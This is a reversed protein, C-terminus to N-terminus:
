APDGGELVRAAEIRLARLREHPARGTASPAEVTIIAAAPMQAAFGALALEGAGPQLRHFRAEELLPDLGSSSRRRPHLPADCLQLVALQEAPLLALDDPASGGRTAHLTDVIIGAGPVGTALRSADELTAVARYPMAEILLRLGFEAAAEALMGFGDAARGRDPDDSFSYLLEAGLRAGLELDRRLRDIRAGFNPTLAVAEIAHVRVGNADCVERIAGADIPADAWSPEGGAIHITRLSTSQFGAEAAALVFERPALSLESLHDVGLSPVTQDPM